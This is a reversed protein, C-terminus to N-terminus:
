RLFLAPPMPRSAYSFGPSSPPAHSNCFHVDPNKSQSFPLSGLAAFLTRCWGLRRRQGLLSQRAAAPAAAATPLACFRPRVPPSTSTRKKLDAASLLLLPPIQLLSSPTSMRRCFLGHRAPHLRGTRARISWSGCGRFGKRRTRRLPPPPLGQRPQRLGRPPAELHTHISASPFAPKPHTSDRTASPLSHALGLRGGGFRGNQRHGTLLGLFGM